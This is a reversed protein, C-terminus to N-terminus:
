CVKNLVHMQELLVEMQEMKERDVKLEEERENVTVQLWLAIATLCEYLGSLQTSLVLREQM